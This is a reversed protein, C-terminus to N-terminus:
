QLDNVVLAFCKHVRFLKGLLIDLDCTYLVTRGTIEQCNPEHIPSYLYPSVKEM